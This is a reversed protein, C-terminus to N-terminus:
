VMKKDENSKKVREGVHYNTCLEFNEKESAKIVKLRLPNEKIYDNLEVVDQVTLSSKEILNWSQLMTVIKNRRAIEYETIPEKNHGDLMFMEKFHCIYYKGRKQFLVCTQILKPKEGNTSKRINGIRMLTEKIRLFNEPKIQVEVFSEIIKQTRSVQNKEM